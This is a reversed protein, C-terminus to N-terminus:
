LSLIVLWLWGGGGRRQKTIRLVKGNTIFLIYLTHKLEFHFIPIRLSMQLVNQHFPPILLFLHIRLPLPPPLDRDMWGWSYTTFEMTGSQHNILQFLSSQVGFFRHLVFISFSHILHFFYCLSFTFFLLIIQSSIIPPFQSDPGRPHGCNTQNQAYITLKSIIITAKVWKPRRRLLLQKSLKRNPIWKRNQGHFTRRIFEATFRNQQAFFSFRVKPSRINASFWDTASTVIQTWHGGGRGGDGGM